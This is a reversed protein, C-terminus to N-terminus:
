SFLYIWPVEPSFSISKRKADQVFESLIHIFTNHDETAELSRTIEEETRGEVHRSKCKNDIYRLFIVKEAIDIIPKIDEPKSFLTLSKKLAFKLNSYENKHNMKGRIVDREKKFSNNIKGRIKFELEMRKMTQDRSVGKQGQTELGISRDSKLLELEDLRSQKFDEIDHNNKIRMIMANYLNEYDPIKLLESFLIRDQLVHIMHGFLRKNKDEGHIIQDCGPYEGNSCIDMLVEHDMDSILNVFHIIAKKYTDLLITINDPLRPRSPNLETPGDNHTPTTSCIGELVVLSNYVEHLQASQAMQLLTATITM